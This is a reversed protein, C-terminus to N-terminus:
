IHILSLAEAAAGLVAAARPHTVLAPDDALEEAWGRLEVLDRYTLADYLATIM